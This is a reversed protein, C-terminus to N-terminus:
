ERAELSQFFMTDHPCCSCSYPYKGPGVPERFSPPSGPSRSLKEQDSRSRSGSSSRSPMRVGAKLTRRVRRHFRGRRRPRRGSKSDRSVASAASSCSSAYSGSRRLNPAEGENQSTFAFPMAPRSDTENLDVQSTAYSSVTHISAARQEHQSEQDFHDNPSPMTAGDDLVFPLPSLTPSPDRQVETM